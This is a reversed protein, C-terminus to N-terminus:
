SQLDLRAFLDRRFLKIGTTADTLVCGGRSLLWNALRSLMGGIMSGGLRRGGHSYRTCSIFECGQDALALMQEIALVPGLEDVALILVYEGRAHQVGTRLANVVGRGLPNHVLRVEPFRPVLRHVVPISEDQDDDVVVLVEYPVDIVARLVKFMIQLNIGENR